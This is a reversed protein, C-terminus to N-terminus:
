VEDRKSAAIDMKRRNKTDETIFRPTMREYSLINNIDLADITMVSPCLHAVEEREFPQDDVFALTNIGINLKQAIEKVSSSKPNWNIQPYLFYESIGLECLKKYADDYNNKSAVSQLIGREDLGKIVDIVGPTLKTAGGELLTGEWITNDLDWVVCKIKEESM